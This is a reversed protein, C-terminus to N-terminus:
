FGHCPGAEQTSTPSSTVTDDAKWRGDVLRMTTVYATYGAGGGLSTPPTGVGAKYHSGPDYSCGNVTATTGHLSVVKADGIRWTSPGVVGATGQSLIFAGAEIQQQSGRVVSNVFPPYTPDDRESAEYFAVLGSEWASAVAQPESSTNTVVTTSTTTSTSTSATTSTQRSQTTPSTTCASLAAASAALAVAPACRRRRTRLKPSHSMRGSDARQNGTFRGIWAWNAM